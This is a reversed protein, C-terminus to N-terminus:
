ADGQVPAYIIEAIAVLDLGDPETTYVSLSYMLGPAADYWLCLEAWDESGTQSLGLTGPCHGVTVEEVNEWPLYMGSINMLEGEKLAAPQVRACFEDSGLNFQMEAMGEGELWRYLVNEAGDPVNFSLGSVQALQEATVDVWPNAIEPDFSYGVFGSDNAESTLFWFELEAPSNEQDLLHAWMRMEEPLVEVPTGPRYLLMEDGESLGYTDHTVVFRVGEDISEAEEAEDAALTDVRVKWTNEDVQGVLALQGEFSSIYITGNPYDDGTEGMESDHFVGHFSGDAEMTLDTSWGGAGSSFSWDMGALQDFFAEEGEAFAAAASLVLLLSLMWAMVKKM